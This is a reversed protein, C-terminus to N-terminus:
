NRVPWVTGVLTGLLGGYVGGRIVEDLGALACSDGQCRNHVRNGQVSGVYVGVALGAVLGILIHSKRSGPLSYAADVEYWSSQVTQELCTRCSPVVLHSSRVGAPAIGQGTATRGAMVEILLALGIGWRSRAFLSLM